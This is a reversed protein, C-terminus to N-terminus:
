SACLCHARITHHPRAQWSHAWLSNLGTRPSITLMQAVMANSHGAAILRLVERERLSLAFADREDDARGSERGGATEDPEGSSAAEDALALAETVVNELPTSGARRGM